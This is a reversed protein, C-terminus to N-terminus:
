SFDWVCLRKDYFSTSVIRASEGNASLRFDSGYNMSEHEEFRALVEMKCEYWTGSLKVVRAGTYMCSALITATWGGLGKTDTDFRMVRLRWVGGGLNLKALLRPAAGAVYVRIHDDYSGTLLVYEQTDQNTHLPLIATVGYDHRGIQKTDGLASWSEEDDSECTSALLRFDDGGSLIKFSATEADGQVSPGFAVTWAQDDHSHILSEDSKMHWDEGMRLLHVECTSTTVAILNPITPHWCCSLILVDQQAGLPQHAIIETLVPSNDASSSALRLFSLRGTSNVVALVDTESPHFHLDLIASPQALTQVKEVKGGTLQFVVLSGNRTQPHQGLADQSQETEAKDKQLDYTGVVFYDPHSPCFEICSPPLDLISTHLSSILRGEQAM